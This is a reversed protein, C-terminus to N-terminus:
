NFISQYMKTRVPADRKVNEHLDVMTKMQKCVYDISSVM